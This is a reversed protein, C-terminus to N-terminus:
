FFRETGIIHRTRAWLGFTYTKATRFGYPVSFDSLSAETPRTLTKFFTVKPSHNLIRFILPVCFGFFRERKLVNQVKETSKPNVFYFVSIKPFNKKIIWFVGFNEILHQLGWIKDSIERPLLFVELVETICRQVLFKFIQIKWM